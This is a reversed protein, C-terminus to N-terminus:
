EKKPHFFNLVYLDEDLLESCMKGFDKVHETFKNCHEDLTALLESQSMHNYGNAMLTGDAHYHRESLGLVEQSAYLIPFAIPFINNIVDIVSALKDKKTESIEWGVSNLNRFSIDLERTCKKMMEINEYIIQFNEKALQENTKNLVPIMANKDQLAGVALVHAVEFNSFGYLLSRLEHLKDDKIELALKYGDGRTLDDKWSNALLFGKYAFLALSINIFVSIWDTIKVDKHISPFQVSLCFIFVLITLAILWIEIKTFRM